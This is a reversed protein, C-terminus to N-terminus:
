AAATVANAGREIVVKMDLLGSSHNSDSQSILVSLESGKLRSIV